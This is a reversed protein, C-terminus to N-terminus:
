KECGEYNRSDMLIQTNMLNSYIQSLERVCQFYVKINECYFCFLQEDISWLEVIYECHETSNSRVWSIFEYWDNQASYGIKIKRFGHAIYFKHLDDTEELFPLVFFEEKGFYPIYEEKRNM